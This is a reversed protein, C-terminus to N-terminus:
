VFLSSIRLALVILLGVALLWFQWRLLREVQDFRQHIKDLYPDPPGSGVVREVEDPQPQPTTTAMCALMPLFDRCSFVM